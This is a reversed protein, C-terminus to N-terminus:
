PIENNIFYASPDSPPCNEVCDFAKSVRGAKLVFYRFGNDNDILQLSSSNYLLIDKPNSSVMLNSDLLSNSGHFSFCDNVRIKPPTM